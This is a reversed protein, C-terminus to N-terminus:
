GEPTTPEAAVFDRRTLRRRFVWFTWAQYCLVVPTVVAAVWTMITLTYPTSSANDVTLSFAPDTTSPLVDPYLSGFLTVAVAVIASTTATFAWGERGRAVLVTAGVLGGAAVAVPALVWLPAGDVLTWVGFVGGAPVALVGATVAVAASRERVPGDTKLALFVGGHLAFVLVTTIGGLLAYPNLLTLLTGTFEHDADLPVGRVVNALAVGVLLAAALSSGTLIRDLVPAWRPEKGRYELAIGRLILAVLLLLFALYFGSFLSAYWEPFAAFMAGGAVLLWVENGDWVPGITGLAVKRDYEDRTVAPLLMGVGFDFGELCLYGTWLVAILVFWVDVLEM